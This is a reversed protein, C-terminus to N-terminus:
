ENTLDLWRLEKEDLSDKIAELAKSWNLLDEHSESGVELKAELSTKEANLKEIDSELDSM